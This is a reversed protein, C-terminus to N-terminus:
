PFCRGTAIAVVGVQTIHSEKKLEEKRDTKRDTQMVTMITFTDWVTRMNHPIVHTNNRVLLHNKM